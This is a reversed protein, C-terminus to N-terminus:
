GSPATGRCARPWRRRRGDGAPDPGRGSGGLPAHGRPRRRPRLLRHPHGHQRHDGGGPRRAGAPGDGRHPRAAAPRGPLQGPRLAGAGGLLRGAARRRGGARRAAARHLRRRAPEAAPRLDRCRRRLYPRDALPQAEALRDGAGAALAAAGGRGARGPGGDGPGAAAARGAAHLGRHPWAPCLGDARARRGAGAGLGAVAARGAPGAPPAARRLLRHLRLPRPRLGGARAALGARLPHEGAQPGGGAGRGAQRAAGSRDLWTVSGPRGAWAMQQALMMTGDGSGGGAFLARLPTAAPRRAGFIWHDIERLHSPSGIILRKAEERPDRAPYPFAEYQAALHGDAADTM